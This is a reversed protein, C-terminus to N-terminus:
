QYLIYVNKFRESAFLYILMYCSFLIHHFSRRIRQNWLIIHIFLLALTIHSVSTENTNIWKIFGNGSWNTAMRCVVISIEKEKGSLLFTYIVWIRLVIATVSQWKQVSLDWQHCHCDLRFGVNEDEVTQFIFHYFRNSFSRFLSLSLSFINFFLTPVNRFRHHCCHRHDHYQAANLCINHSFSM